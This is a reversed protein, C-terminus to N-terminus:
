KFKVDILAFTPQKQVNQSFIHRVYVIFTHVNRSACVKLIAM